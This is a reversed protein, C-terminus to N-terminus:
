FGSENLFQEMLEAGEALSPERLGMVVFGPQQEFDTIYTVIREAFRGCYRGTAPDFENLRLVHGVEFGRDNRRIEFPKAGSAVAKYYEPWTKLNHIKV